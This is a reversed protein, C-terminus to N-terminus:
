IIAKKNKTKQKLEKSM